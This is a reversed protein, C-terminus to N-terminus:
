SRYLKCALEDIEAQIEEIRDQRDVVEEEQLELYAGFALLGTETKPLVDQALM